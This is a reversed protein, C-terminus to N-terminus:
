QHRRNNKLRSRHFGKVCTFVFSIMRPMPKVSKSEPAPTNACDGSEGSFFFSNRLNSGASMTGSALMSSGLARSLWTPLPPVCDLRSARVEAEAAGIDAATSEVTVIGGAAGAVLAGVDKRAAGESAGLPPTTRVWDAAGIVCDDSGAAAPAGAGAVATFLGAREVLNDNGRM